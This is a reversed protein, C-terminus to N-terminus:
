DAWLSFGNNPMHPTGSAIFSMFRSWFSAPNGASTQFVKWQGGKNKLVYMQRNTERYSYVYSGDREDWWRLYWYETTTVEAEDQGIRSHPNRTGNLM